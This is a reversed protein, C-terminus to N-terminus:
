AFALATLSKGEWRVQLGSPFDSLPNTADLLVKGKVDGLSDVVGKIGEDSHQGSIALILVDSKSIAESVVEIPIKGEQGAEKLAATGKDVNRAGLVTEKFQNSGVLRAACCM